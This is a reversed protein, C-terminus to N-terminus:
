RGDGGRDRESGRGPPGCSHHHHEDEYTYNVHWVSGEDPWVWTLPHFWRVADSWKSRGREAEDGERGEGSEGGREGRGREGERRVGEEGREGKRRVGEEGREGKRRVGEEGREGKRRM